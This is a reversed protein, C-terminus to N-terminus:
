WVRVQLDIVAQQRVRHDQQQQLSASILNRMTVVAGVAFAPADRSLTLVKTSQQACSKFFSVCGRVVESTSQVLKTKPVHQLTVRVGCRRWVREITTVTMCQLVSRQSSIHRNAQRTCMLELKECIATMRLRTGGTSARMLRRSVINQLLTTTHLLQM